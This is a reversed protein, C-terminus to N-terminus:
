TNDDPGGRVQWPRIEWRSDAIRAMVQKFKDFRGRSPFPEQAVILAHAQNEPEKEPCPDAEVDIPGFGAISRVEAATFSIM